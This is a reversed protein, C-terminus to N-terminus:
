QPDFIDFTQSLPGDPLSTLDCWSMDLEQLGKLSIVGPPVHVLKGQSDTPGELHLSTLGQFSPQLIDSLEQLVSVLSKCLRWKQHILNTGPPSLHSVQLSRNVEFDPLWIKLERLKSLASFLSPLAKFRCGLCELHPLSTIADFAQHMATADQKDERDIDFSLRRLSHWGSTVRADPLQCSTGGLSLSSLLELALLEQPSLMEPMWCNRLMLLILLRAVPSVKPLMYGAECEYVDLALSQLRQLQLVFSPLVVTHPGSVTEDGYLELQLCTLCSLASFGQLLQLERHNLGAVRLSRLNALQAIGRMGLQQESTLDYYSESEFIGIDLSDLLPLSDLNCLLRAFM